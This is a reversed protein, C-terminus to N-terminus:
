PYTHEQAHTLTDARSDRDRSARGLVACPWLWHSHPQPTFHQKSTRTAHVPPPVRVPPPRQHGAAEGSLLRQPTM